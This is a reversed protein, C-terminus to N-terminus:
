TLRASWGGYLEAFIDQLSRTVAWAPYHERIKGLNSIYCVHDGTRSREAYDHVMRRGSTAEAFAFAELISCSNARGGGLNYTEGARPRDIFGHAFRAVDEAHLNDRVQKGRHGHVTYRAGTVNCKVLYSLFGHLEVGAHRAGTVCGTRLCCTPM